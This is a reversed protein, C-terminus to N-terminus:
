IFLGMLVGLRNTLILIGILVMLIGTIRKIIIMHKFIYKRVITFKEILMASLLFPIGLGLSYIGLTIVGDITSANSTYVLISGLIPGVCPTWGAAFAVGMIFPGFNRTNKIVKKEMYLRGVKIIELTYIGFFIILIGSIIRLLELHENFLEGLLTASAGLIIFIITFGLIFLLSKVFIVNKKGDSKGSAGGTLINIYVPILPLVCPSLFSIVGAFFAVFINVREM